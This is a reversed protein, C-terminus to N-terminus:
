AFIFCNDSIHGLALVIHHNFHHNPQNQLVKDSVANVGTVVVAPLIVYLNHHNTLANGVDKNFHTVFHIFLMMLDHLINVTNLSQVNIGQDGLLKASIAILVGL